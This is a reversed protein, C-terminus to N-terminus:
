KPLFGVFPPLGGLSLLNFFFIVQLSLISKKFSLQKIDNLNFHKRIVVIPYLLFVYLLLYFSLIFFNLSSALVLWGIQTISSYTLIKRTQTQALGIFSGLLISCIALSPILNSYNLYSLIILPNIKQISLLLFLVEWSLFTVMSPLWAHFPAIGLKLALAIFLLLESLFSNVMLFSATVLVLFISGLTQRLFYKL